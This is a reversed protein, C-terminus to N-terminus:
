PIDSETPLKKGFIINMINGIWESLRDFFVAILIVVILLILITAVVNSVGSQSRIFNKIGEKAVIAKNHMAIWARDLYSM